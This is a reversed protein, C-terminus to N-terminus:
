SIPTLRVVPLERDTKTIYGTFSPATRVVRQWAADRDAGTLSEPRVRYTRNGIEVWVRDPQKALNLFWAPHSIAGGASGVVLWTGGPEPFYMITSRREQGTKAGITKLSLVNGGQFKRNRFIRFMLDNFFRMM